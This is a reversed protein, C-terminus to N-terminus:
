LARSTKLTRVTRAVPQNPRTAFSTSNGRAQDTELNVGLYKAFLRFWKGVSLCYPTSRVQRLPPSNMDARLRSYRISDNLEKSRRGFVFQKTNKATRNAYSQM